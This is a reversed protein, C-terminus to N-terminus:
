EMSTRRQVAGLCPPGEDLLALRHVLVPLSTGWHFNPGPEATCRSFAAGRGPCSAFLAPSTAMRARRSRKLAASVLARYAREGNRPRDLGFGHWANATAADPTHTFGAVHAGCDLPNRQRRRCCRCAPILRQKSVEYIAAVSSPLLGADRAPKLAAAIPKPFNERHAPPIEFGEAHKGRMRGPRAQLFRWPHPFNRSPNKFNWRRM